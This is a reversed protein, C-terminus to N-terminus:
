WALAEGRFVPGEVCARAHGRVGGSWVPVACGYCAGSACAMRERVALQAPVRGAAAERAAVLMERGGSVYVASYRSLDGARDLVQRSADPAGGTPVLEAGPYNGSLWSGYAAPASAPAELFVEHEVGLRSLSRSLLKLPAVWVGGGLLLAPGDGGVTFGRGLPGSVSLESAEALLATGRGRVEFLLSTTTGESDHVFFPRSLFPDLATSGGPRVSVFQGPEPPGGPADSRYRLLVHDGFAERHLVEATHLKM